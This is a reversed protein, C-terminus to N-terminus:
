RGKKASKFLIDWPAPKLNGIPIYRERKVKVISAKWIQNERSLLINFQTRYKVRALETVVFCALICENKDYFLPHSPYTVTPIASRKLYKGIAEESSAQIKQVERDTKRTVDFAFYLVTFFCCAILLAGFFLVTKKMKSGGTGCLQKGHSKGNTNRGKFV